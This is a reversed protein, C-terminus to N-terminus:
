CLSPPLARHAIFPSFYTEMTRASTTSMTSRSCRALSASTMPVESSGSVWIISAAARSKITSRRSSSCHSTSSSRWRKSRILSAGHVEGLGFRDDFDGRQGLLEAGGGSLEIGEGISRRCDLEPREPPLHVGDPHLDRLREVRLRDRM